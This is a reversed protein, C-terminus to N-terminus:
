RTYQASQKRKRDADDLGLGRRSTDINISPMGGIQRYYLFWELLMLGLALLVLVWWFERLGPQEEAEADLVTGGLTIQEATRPAIDSEGTGFINVAVPVTQLLADDDYMELTYLGATDTGTYTVVDGNVPLTDQTSDPQTITIQTAEVPPAISVTDGVTIQGNGRIVNAPSFWEMMNAMLVPYAIKLPLDSARLDFPIIVMQRNAQEDAILVAGNDTEALVTGRNDALRVPVFERLNIDSLDVFAMLPHNSATTRIRGGSVPESVTFQSTSRPPNIVIMDGDPLVDPLWGDFVYLDYPQSPLTGRATDARFTQVGPISRLAQEIFLNGDPSAFLVRRTSRDTGVSWARNDAALYDVTEGDFILEAEVTEFPRDVDFVFSRQSGASVTQRSSEWLDGDLRVVLSLTADNTGYNEVQAFLQPNAGAQARTALATIAINDASTGVPVYVPEPLNQALVAVDDIGGDSIVIIRFDNTGDSGAAALTLATNWDGAGSGPEANRIADRLEILNSTYEILSTASTGVRIVSMENNPGIEGAIELARDKAAEFRSRGGVDLANMSATADLLIVTRASSITPVIQAPRALALVLLLLIILQLILLLNRRLRQWPTNAERDQLVQQWLFNSSVVIDQRRLKLMYLLIIPIAILLGAFALPALFQM